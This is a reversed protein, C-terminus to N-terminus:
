LPNQQYLRLGNMSASVLLNELWNEAYRKGNLREAPCRQGRHKRVTDPSSPCFNWLLALARVRLEASMLTGHFYQGNFCARDLFKMLRDVMNSTRHAWQHNYSRSFQARKDCLDLTPNKMPSDPLTRTAWERLRRLRQAFAAKTPARYAQWVRERVQDFAEALAKTARDRIKLFAHLFCLIVTITPFLAKWAGQTASWGDTNVTEPAYGPDVAKAEDAFVGYAQTLAAESASAAVSAGLICEEGATTALYIREGDLWSHKEDAVLDTPLRAPTKVTTGVVSFRGLGQQLRYWYMADRGFVYAIAWYPVHFRMLLLAKEAEAVTASMYPMVFAPAVTFVEGTANLRIRRCRLQQKRSPDTFGYLVYGGELGEPFIEPYQRDLRDIQAKAFESENMFREYEAEAIPLRITRYGRTPRHAVTDV